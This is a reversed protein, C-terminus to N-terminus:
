VNNAGSDTPAEFNPASVFSLAGTAANMAFKAADAGGTISYTFTTGADADTATVTAVATSNETVSVSATAGGGNSTIVPANDNLLAASIRIALTDVNAGDSAQVRVVYINDAGVDA